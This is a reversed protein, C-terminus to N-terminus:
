KKFSNLLDSIEKHGNKEAFTGADDGDIDKLSPNARNAILIRVVELQGESAAYMLATFHEDKDQIDPDAQHNLLLKVAAAWPGSSAMMLATRGYNDQLNVAAGKELLERILEVHGNYSAYMLATRGDMDKANVDVGEALLSRVMSLQGNLSAEYILNSRATDSIGSNGPVATVAETKNESKNRCGSLAILIIILTGKLCNTIEM